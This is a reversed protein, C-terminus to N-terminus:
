QKIDDLARWVVREHVGVEAMMLRYRERREGVGLGCREFGWLGLAGVM